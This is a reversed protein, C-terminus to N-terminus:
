VSAARTVTASGETEDSGPAPTEGAGEGDGLLEDDVAAPISRRTLRADVAAFM